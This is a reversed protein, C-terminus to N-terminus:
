DQQPAKSAWRQQLTATRQQKWGDFAAERADLAAEDLEPRGGTLATDAESGFVYDGPIVKLAKCLSQSKSLLFEMNRLGNRWNAPIADYGLYAGLLAGAVATNTSADGGEIAVDSILKEFLSKRTTEFEPESSDVESLRSMAKRLCYIAAGLTKYTDGGSRKEAPSKFEDLGMAFLSGSTVIRSLEERRSKNLRYYKVEAEYKQAIYWGVSTQLHRDLEQITRIEGRILGRAIATIIVASVVCRPDSHTVRAVNAAAALAEHTSGNARIAGIPHTRMIAGKGNGEDKGGGTAVWYNQASALPGGTDQRLYDLRALVVENYEDIDPVGTDLARLGKYRWDRLRTAVEVHKIDGTHLFALLICLAMDTDDTWSADDFKSRHDDPFYPTPNQGTSDLLFGFPYHDKIDLASLSETYLGVADGVAAGVMLGVIRNEADNTRNAAAM